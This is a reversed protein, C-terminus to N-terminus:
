FNTSSLCLLATRFAYRTPRRFNSSSLFNLTNVKKCLSINLYELLILSSINELGISSILLCEKLNLYHLSKLKSLHEIGHNDIQICGSLNLYQLLKCSSIYQLCDNNIHICETLNLSQLSFLSSIHHIGESDILICKSLNLNQLSKLSSIYELCKNNVLKCETLHLSTLLKLSPLYKIGVENILNCKTLEFDTLTNILSLYQICDNSLNNFFSNYKKVFKINEINTFINLLIGFQSDAINMNIILDSLSIKKSKVIKKIDNLYNLNKLTITIKIFKLSCNDYIKKNTIIRNYTETNLELFENELKNNYIVPTMHIPQENNQKILNIKENTQKILSDTFDINNNRLSTDFKYSNIQKVPMNKLSSDNQKDYNIFNRTTKSNLVESNSESGLYDSKLIKYKNKLIEYKNKYKVYSSKYKLYKHEM